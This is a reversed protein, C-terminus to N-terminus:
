WLSHQKPLSQLRIHLPELGEAWEMENGCVPGQVACDIDWPHVSHYMYTCYHYTKYTGALGYQVSSYNSCVTVATGVEPLGFM